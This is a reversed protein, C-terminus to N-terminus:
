LKQLDCLTEIVEIRHARVWRTRRLQDSAQRIRRRVSDLEFGAVAALQVATRRRREIAASDRKRQSVATLHEAGNM